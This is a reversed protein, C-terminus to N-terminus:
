FLDEALDLSASQRDLEELLAECFSWIAEDHAIHHTLIGLPEGPGSTAARRAVAGAIEAILRSVDRLSRSGHWDIPDIHTNVQTLGPAPRALSRAGFTSLGRYGCAPLLRV